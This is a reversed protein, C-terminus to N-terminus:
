KVLGQKIDGLRHPTFHTDIEMGIGTLGRAKALQELPIYCLEDEGLGTVYGFALNRVGDPAVESFETLYWTASGCPDFLKVYVIADDGKGDQKYLAPMGRMVCALGFQVMKVAGPGVGNQNIHRSLPETDPITKVKIGNKM